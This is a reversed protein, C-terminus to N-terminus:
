EAATALPQHELYATFAAHEARAAKVIRPERLSHPTDLRMMQFRGDKVRWSSLKSLPAAFVLSAAVPMLWLSVMDAWMGYVLGVGLLTELIHFRFMARWSYGRNNRVQPMWTGGIGMLARAVAITQQIMLIPAYLISCMIEFLVSAVFPRLGGYAQRVRRRCSLAVMGIVKPLLLMSYVIALYVWSEMQMKDPWIPHLPHSANFYNHAENPEAAGIVTWIIILALWAPSLLFAAAGQFLHYRSVPHFGRATLLRLHQLNGQCWRRDRLVYDILTQPAEEFSGGSHPLFRVTWGARRLMGAEVFDHSLILKEHGRWSKLYPLRASEAFARTRIIANHGWYNGERQSWVSLGEALLWGYITNSFQQIRGFLTEAGFVVPFSQILGADPDQALARSLHRIATGSMLSDADLVLMAEYAGGWNELWDSLNGVKKDTNRSRRRYYVNVDAPCRTQLAMFAREEQEIVESDFSDSLIFASYRDVGKREALAKLMAQVNGFVDAPRENYVPILLAINQAGGNDRTEHRKVPAIAMRLLGVLVSSVSLSVWIFTIGILAIASGEVLTVGGTQFWHIFGMVLLTTVAVGPAFAVFRWLRDAVSMRFQRRPVPRDGFNQAVLALPSREPMIQAAYETM